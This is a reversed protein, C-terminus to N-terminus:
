VVNGLIVSVLLMIPALQATRGVWLYIRYKREGSNELRQSIYSTNEYMYTLNTIFLIFFPVPIYVIAMLLPDDFIIIRSIISLIAIERFEKVIDYEFIESLISVVEESLDFTVATNVILLVVFFFFVGLVLNILANWEAKKFLKNVRRESKRDYEFPPTYLSWYKQFIDRLFFILRLSYTVVAASLVSISMVFIYLYFTGLVPIDMWLVGFPGSGDTIIIEIWLPIYLFFFLFILVSVGSYISYIKRLVKKM